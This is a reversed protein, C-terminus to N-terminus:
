GTLHEIPGTTTVTRAATVVRFSIGHMDGHERIRIREAEEIAEIIRGQYALLEAPRYMGATTRGWIQGDQRIELTHHTSTLQRMTQTGYTNPRLDTLLERDGHSPLPLGSMRTGGRRRIRFLVWPAGFPTM